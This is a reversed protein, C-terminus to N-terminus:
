YCCLYKRRKKWIDLIMEYRHPPMGKFPINSTAFIYGGGEGGYKLNIEDVYKMLDLAQNKGIYEYLTGGFDNTINYKNIRHFDTFARIRFDSVYNLYIPEIINNCDNKEKLLYKNEIFKKILLVEKENLVSRIEHDVIRIVELKYLLGIFLNMDVSRNKVANLYEENKDICNYAKSFVWLARGQFWVSKDTGYINGKKDLCTYIGGNKYDIADKLWFPLINNVLDSRFNM